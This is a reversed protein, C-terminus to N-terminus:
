AAISQGGGIQEDIFTDWSVPKTGTIAAFEAADFVADSDQIAGAANLHFQTRVCDMYAPDAGANVAERYFADPDKPRTVLPRSKREGLRAALGPISEAEYGLRYTKGMHDEPRALCAAALKGVDRADVWSWTADGILNVLHDEQLWGFSTVNQMYAEPQLHTFGLGQQEIYAEIMRHWGWHAVEATPNGSAGVHVIHDVRQRKAEDVVRKSQKLMDVSYGTLLLVGHVDALAAAISAPNDLDLYRAEIGRDRMAARQEESRVAAIPNLSIKTALEQLRSLAAGGVTGTAGIVLVNRM